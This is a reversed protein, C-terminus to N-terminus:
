SKIGLLTQLMEDITTIIKAAASYSSQYQMLNALEEDKNVGSISQFQTNITNHLAENTDYSTSAASADTAVKTTLSSYYGAITEKSVSGDKAYFNLSNYQMQMMSNAVDHNGVVPASYAQMLLPDKKYEAKVDINSGDTGTFFQSIGIAGAFNTGNDQIAIKYGNNLSTPSLSLVGNDMFTAKYYDEVDNLSNNDKNDDTNKNMQTLISSSFTDDGMTTTNNINITKRAVEKGASDYVIMDFSGDDINNYANQLSTNSKLDLVPSQMSTQASQAYVNNTETILTQAFSDLKNVYDQIMGDQPYGGNVAPNIIRGRLDLMAGIKGGSLQETLNYRTGDQIESYISYYTSGNSTNDIVLPHFTSGDVFSAGAINLYYQTGTDTMNPDISNTSTINGKAVSIDLMKALTLELEDRKDRLDNAYNGKDSEINSIQGNLEAIREGLSNIEDISTKLQTNISDQINRISERTSQIDGSLTVASQVLSIKQSGANANSALNNWQTFYNTLDKTIGADALDPFQKAVEQLSQSSYTDYSLNSSASRLKAFVFEDHIRVISTVTVGSGVSVSQGSLAPSASFNVRQRTYFENKANAINQSTTAVAVQAANLGSNGTNLIGFLNSM